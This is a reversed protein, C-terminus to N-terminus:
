VGGTAVGMNPLAPGLSRSTLYVVAVAVGVGISSQVWLLTTHFDTEAPVAAGDTKLNDQQRTVMGGSRSGEANKPGAFIDLLKNARPAAENTLFWQAMNWRDSARIHFM